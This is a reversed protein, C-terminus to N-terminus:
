KVVEFSVVWVLVDRQWSKPGNVHEWVRRYASVADSICDGPADAFPRYCNGDYAIGEAIVDAESIDGLPEQQISLIRIRLPTWGDFMAWRKDQDTFASLPTKWEDSSSNWWVGPKGRGPCVAYDRGVQWKLLGNGANASFVAFIKREGTDYDPIGYEIREGAKVARRTMTKDGRVIATIHEPTFQFAM